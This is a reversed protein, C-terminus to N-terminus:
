IKAFFKRVVGTTEHDFASYDHDIGMALGVMINRTGPEHVDESLFFQHTSVSVYVIAM